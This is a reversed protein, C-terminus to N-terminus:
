HESPLAMENVRKVSADNGSGDGDWPPASVTSIHVRPAVM